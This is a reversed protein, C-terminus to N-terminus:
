VSRRARDAVSQFLILTCCGLLFVGAAEYGDLTVIGFAAIATLITILDAIAYRHRSVTSRLASIM